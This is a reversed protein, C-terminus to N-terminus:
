KKDGIHMSSTTNLIFTCAYNSCNSHTHVCTCSSLTLLSLYLHFPPPPPPPPCVETLYSSSELWTRDHVIEKVSADNDKILKTLDHLFGPRDLLHVRFKVMRGDKILGRELSQSLVPTDIDGGRLMVVVSHLSHLNNKCAM